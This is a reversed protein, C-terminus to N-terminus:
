GLWRLLIGSATAFIGSAAALIGPAAAVIQAASVAPRSRSCLSTDGARECRWRWVGSPLTVQPEIEPHGAQAGVV